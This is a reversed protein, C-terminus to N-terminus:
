AEVRESRSGAEQGIAALADLVYDVDAETLFPGLSLRCAGGGGSGCTQHAIPACHLGARTLVGYETELVMALEQPTLGLEKGPMLSFVGVRRNVDTTGLLGYGSLESDGLRVLVRRMLGLEHARVQDIGTELLWRVGANLGAIGVTNHSGAEFREPLTEPHTQEESRSGTGGERVTDMLREVGPRICLGGTGTPGLLGKHGPFALLDIGMRRMDVVVHGLSQAGDVILLPRSSLGSITRHIAEVDQVTGTVNSAHNVVVAVTSGDARCARALDDPEVLGTHPDAPVVTWEVGPDDRRLAHLPRLVSNHEMATCVVHVGAGRVRRAHRVVGKIALNLGDTTNHGFIVHSPSRQGRDDTLNVLKAINARCQEIERGAERAEAYVGRGPGGIQTLMRVMAEAVGAPKPFSTAANDFYRRTPGHTM